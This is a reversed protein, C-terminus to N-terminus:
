PVAFLPLGPGNVTSHRWQRHRPRMFAAPFIAKIRREGALGGTTRPALLKLEDGEDYQHGENTVFTAPNSLVSKLFITSLQDTDFSTEPVSKLNNIM